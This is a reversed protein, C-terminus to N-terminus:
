SPGPPTLLSGDLPVQAGVLAPSLGPLGPLECAQPKAVVGAGQHPTSRTGPPLPQCPTPPTEQSFQNLCLSM